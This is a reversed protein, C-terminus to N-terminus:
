DNLEELTKISQFSQSKIFCDEHDYIINFEPYDKTIAEFEADPIDLCGGNQFDTYKNEIHLEDNKRKLQLSFDFQSTYYEGNPKLFNYENEPVILFEEFSIIDFGKPHAYNAIADGHVFANLTPLYLVGHGWISLRVAPINLNHFLGELILTPKHCGVIRNKYVMELTLLSQISATSQENFDVYHIWPWNNGSESVAHFFNKEGWLVLNEATATHTTASDLLKFALNYQKYHSDEVFLNQTFPHNHYNVNPQGNPKAMTPLGDPIPPRGLNQENTEDDTSDNEIFLGQIDEQSYEKLSWPLDKNVETWLGNAVNIIFTKTGLMPLEYNEFFENLLTEKELIKDTPTYDKEKILKKVLEYGNIQQNTTKDTIETNLLKEKVEQLSTYSDLIQVEDQNTFLDSIKPKIEITKKQVKINQTPAKQIRRINRVNIAPRTRSSVRRMLGQAQDTQYLAFGSLLIAIAALAGLIAKKNM